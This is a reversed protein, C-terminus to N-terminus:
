KVNFKLKLDEIVWKYHEGNKEIINKIINKVNENYYTLVGDEDDNKESRYYTFVNLSSFLRMQGRITGWFMELEDDSVGESRLTFILWKKTDKDTYKLKNEYLFYSYLLTIGAPELDDMIVNNLYKEWEEKNLIDIGSDLSYVTKNLNMFVKLPEFNATLKEQIGHSMELLLSSLRKELDSIIENLNNNELEKTAVEVRTSVKEVKKASKELRKTSDVTTASQYYTYIIALVALIISVITGAFGWHSIVNKDGSYQYTFISIAGLCMILLWYLIDKKEIWSTLTKEKEEINKEKENAPNKMVMAIIFLSFILLLPIILLWWARIEVNVIDGM